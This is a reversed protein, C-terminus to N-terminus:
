SEDRRNMDHPELTRGLDILFSERAKRKKLTGFRYILVEILIFRSVYYISDPFTVQVTPLFSSVFISTLNLFFQLINERNRERM